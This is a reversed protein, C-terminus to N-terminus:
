WLAERYNNFLGAARDEKEVIYSFGGVAEITHQTTSEICNESVPIWGWFLLVTGMLVFPSGHEPRCRCPRENVIAPRKCTEASTFPIEM